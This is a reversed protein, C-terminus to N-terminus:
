GEDKTRKAELVYALNQAPASLQRVLSQMPALLQALLRARMEDKGPMNALDSEVKSGEVVSTDLLGCKVGLKEYAEGGKRFDRIVKAAASPDEYSWAVATPGKLHPLLKQSGVKTGDLAKRILTNKVVRYEIGAKRFRARLDTILEVNIGRFDVFVASVSKEFKGRVEEIETAKNQRAENMTEM